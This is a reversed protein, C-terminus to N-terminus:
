PWPSIPQNAGALCYVACLSVWGICYGAKEIGTMDATTSPQKKEIGKIGTAVPSSDPGITACGTFVGTVTVLFLCASLTRLTKMTNSQQCGECPFMRLAPATLLHLTRASPWRPPTLNSYSVDLM